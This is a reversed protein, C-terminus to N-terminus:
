RAGGACGVPVSTADRGKLLVRGAPAEELRNFTRLLTTKSAAPAGVVATVRGRAIRVTVGDLVQPGRSM